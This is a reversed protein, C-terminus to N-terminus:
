KMAVNQINNKLYGLANVYEQGATAAWAGFAYADVNHSTFSVDGTPLSTKSHSDIYATLSDISTLATREEDTVKGNGDLDIPLVSLGAVPQRTAADYVLSAVDVAIAEPRKKVVSIVSEERGLVKNGKIRKVDVNLSGALLETTASHSGTLTYVTGPLSKKGRSDIAEDLNREVFIERVVKENLGKQVKKENLIANGSNAIPLLFYRALSETNTSNGSTISITADSGEATSVIEAKFAPNQKQYESVLKEVLPRTFQADAVSIRVTQAAAIAPM